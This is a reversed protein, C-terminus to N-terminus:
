GNKIKNADIVFNIGNQYIEKLGEEQWEDMPAFPNVHSFVTNLNYGIIDGDVIFIVLGSKIKKKDNETETFKEGLLEILKDYDGISSDNKLYYIKDLESELTMDTLIQAISRCFACNATGIFLVMSKNSKIIYEIETISTYKVKSNPDLKVSLFKNGISDEKNNLTEYENKFQISDSPVNKLKHFSLLTFIILFAIIM